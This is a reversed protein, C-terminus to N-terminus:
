DNTVMPATNFLGYGPKDLLYLSFLCFIGVGLNSSPDACGCHSMSVVISLPGCALTSLFNIVVVLSLAFGFLVIHLGGLNEVM